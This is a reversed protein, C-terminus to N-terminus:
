AVCRDEEEESDSPDPLGSDEEATMEVDDLSLEAPKYEEYVREHVAVQDGESYSLCHFVPCPLEPLAPLEPRLVVALRWKPWDPGAPGLDKLYTGTTLPLIAGKRKGDHLYCYRDTTDKIVKM